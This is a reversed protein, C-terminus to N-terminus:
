DCEGVREGTISGDVSFMNGMQIQWNGSFTTSSIEYAMQGTMEM